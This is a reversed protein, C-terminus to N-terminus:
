GRDHPQVRSLSCGPRGAAGQPVAERRELEWMKAYTLFVYAAWFGAMFFGPILDQFGRLWFYRYVFAAVSHGITQPISFRKGQRYREEAEWTTFDGLLHQTVQHVNRQGFHLLPNQITGAPGDLLVHAHVRRSQYRGKDRRFLRLQYDPYNGGHLLPCGWAHNLRPLRFGVFEGPDTLIRCIEARLNGNVREDTDVILVWNNSVQPIAWNKQTASDIYEHQLIRSAYRKAIDITGDTSFSDVVVIEDAWTVSRLCEEIVDVSDGCPVLVSLREMM